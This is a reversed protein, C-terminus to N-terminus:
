RQDARRDAKGAVRAGRGRIVSEAKESARHPADSSDEVEDGRTQNSHRDRIRDSLRRRHDGREPAYEDPALEAPRVDDRIQIQDPHENRIHQRQDQDGPCILSGLINEGGIRRSCHISAANLMSCVTSRSCAFSRLKMRLRTASGLSTSSMRCSTSYSSIKAGPGTSCTVAQNYWVVVFLIM